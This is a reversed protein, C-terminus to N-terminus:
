TQKEWCSKCHVHKDREKPQQDILWRPDGLSLWGGCLSRGDENFFHAKTSGGQLSVIYGWGSM